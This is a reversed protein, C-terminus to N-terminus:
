GGMTTEVNTTRDTRGKAGQYQPSQITPVSSGHNRLRARWFWRCQQHMAARSQALDERAHMESVFLSIRGHPQINAPPTTAAWASQRWSSPQGFSEHRANKPFRMVWLFCHRRWQKTRSGCIYHSKRGCTVHVIEQCKCVLANGVGRKHYNEDVCLVGITARHEGENSRQMGLEAMGIVQGSQSKALLITYKSGQMKRATSVYQNYTYTEALNRGVAKWALREVPSAEKTPADFANVVLSATQMWDTKTTPPTIFWASANYIHWILVVLLTSGVATM